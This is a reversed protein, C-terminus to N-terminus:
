ENIFQATKTASDWETKIGLIRAIEGIPAYTRGNEIVVKTGMKIPAGNVTAIDSGSTLQITKEGAFIIVSVSHM